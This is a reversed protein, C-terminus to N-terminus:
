VAEVSSILEDSAEKIWTDSDNTLTITYKNGDGKNTGTEGTGASTYVPENEGLCWYHGNSDKVVAMTESLTLASMEMRKVTDMRSFVLTLEATVYSVGNEPATTLTQNLSSSNPKVYYRRWVINDAKTNIKGDGNDAMEGAKYDAIWVTQIGGKSGKCDNVLGKLEMNSCAM